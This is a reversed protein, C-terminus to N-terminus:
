GLVERRATTTTDTLITIIGVRDTRSQMCLPLFSPLSKEKREEKVVKRERVLM